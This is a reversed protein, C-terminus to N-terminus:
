KFVEKLLKTVRASPNTRIKQEEQALVHFLGDISKQM